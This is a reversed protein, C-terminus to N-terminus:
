WEGRLTSGVREVVAGLADRWSADTYNYALAVQMAYPFDNQDQALMEVRFSGTAQKPVMVFPVTLVFGSTSSTPDTLNLAIPKTPDCGFETCEFFPVAGSSVFTPVGEEFLKWEARGYTIASTLQGSFVGSANTGAEWKCGGLYTDTVHMANQVLDSVEFPAPDCLSCVPGSWGHDCKCEDAGVCTGHVCPVQCEAIDCNNGRWHPQCVCDDPGQCTGHVCGYSCVPSDCNPGSWGSACTCTNPATCNGHASCPTDCIAQDCSGGQWGAACSCVNPATCNGHV